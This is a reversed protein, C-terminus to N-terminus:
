VHWARPRGQRHYGASDDFFRASTGMGFSESTSRRSDPQAGIGGQSTYVGPGPSDIYEPVSKAHEQSVFVKAQDARTSTGFKWSAYSHKQSDHQKSVAAPVAYQGPGPMKGGSVKGFTHRHSVGFSHSPATHYRGDMGTPRYVPGPSSMGYKDSVM